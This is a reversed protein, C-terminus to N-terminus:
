GVAEDTTPGPGDDADDDSGGGWAGEFIGQVIAAVEDMDVPDPEEAPLPEPEPEVDPPTCPEAAPAAPDLAVADDCTGGTDPPIPPPVFSGPDVGASSRDPEAAPEAPADGAPAEVEGAGDGTQADSTTGGAPAAEAPAATASGEVASGGSTAAPDPRSGSAASSLAVMGPAAATPAPPPQDALRPAVVSGAAVLAATTAAAKMTFPMSVLKALGAAAVGIALGAGATTADFEPVDRAIAARVALPVVVIGAAYRPVTRVTDRLRRRARFLLSEVVPVSVSLASAVEEYSLGLFDRLAIAERQRSPLKAIETTLLDFEARRDVVEALDTGDSFEIGDDFPIAAHARTRLRARCENRAIAALWPGAERPENGRLLARYASVFTQQSADEAEHHDRLLLRCLGFVMSAHEDFLSSLRAGARRSIRNQTFSPQPTM